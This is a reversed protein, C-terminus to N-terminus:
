SLIRQFHLHKFKILWVYLYAETPRLSWIQHGSKDMQREKAVSISSSNSSYIKEGVHKSCVTYFAVQKRKVFKSQLCYVQTYVRKGEHNRYGNRTWKCEHQRNSRRWICNYEWGTIQFDFVHYANHLRYVIIYHLSNWMVVNRIFSM